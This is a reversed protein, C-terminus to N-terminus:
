KTPFIYPLPSQGYNSLTDSSLDLNTTLVPSCNEVAGLDGRYFTACVTYSYHHSGVVHFADSFAYDGSSLPATTGVAQGDRHITFADPRNAASSYSWGLVIHGADRSVVHLGGPTAPTGAPPSVSPALAPYLVAACASDSWNESVYGSQPDFDNWTRARMQICYTAGFDMSTFTYQQREGDARDDRSGGFVCGDHINYDSSYQHLLSRLMRSPEHPTMDTAVGNETGIFEYCVKENATPLWSLTIAGAADSSAQLAIPTAPRDCGFIGCASAAPAGFGRSFLLTAGLGAVLLLATAGRRATTRRTLNIM